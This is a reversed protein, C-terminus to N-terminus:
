GDGPTANGSHVGLEPWLGSVRLVERGLDLRDSPGM